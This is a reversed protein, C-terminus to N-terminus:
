LLIVGFVASVFFGIWSGHFVVSDAASSSATASPTSTSSPKKTSSVFGSTTTAGPSGAQSTVTPAALPATSQGKIQNLVDASFTGTMGDLTFKASFAMAPYQPQKSDKLSLSEMRIFYESSNPGISADPTFDLSGVKSVDVSASLTQLRTQQQANGVYISISCPGYKDLAPDSGNDQWSITASKGGHFTTSAIPQTIFPVAFAVSLSALIVLAKTFM